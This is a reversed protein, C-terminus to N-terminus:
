EEDAEEEEDDEVGLMDALSGLQAAMFLKQFKDDQDGVVKNVGDLATMFCCVATERNALSQCIVQAGNSGKSHVVAFIFDAEPIIATGRKPDSENVVAVRISEGNM